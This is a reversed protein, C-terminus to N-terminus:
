GVGEIKQFLAESFHSSDELETSLLGVSDLLQKVRSRTQAAKTPSRDQSTKDKRKLTLLKEALHSRKGPIVVDEFKYYKSSQLSIDPAAQNCCCSPQTSCLELCQFRLTSLRTPQRSYPRAWAGAYFRQHPRGRPM